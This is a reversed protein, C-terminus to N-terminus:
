GYVELIRDRQRELIYAAYPVFVELKDFRAQDLELMRNLEATPRTFFMRHKMIKAAQALQDKTFLETLPMTKMKFCFQHVHQRGTNVGWVM